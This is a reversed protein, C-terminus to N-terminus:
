INLNLCHSSIWPYFYILTLSQFNSVSNSDKRFVL